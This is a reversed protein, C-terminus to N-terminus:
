LKVRPNSIRIEYGDDYPDYSDIIHWLNGHFECKLMANLIRNIVKSRNLYTRGKLLQDIRELLDQEIRFSILQTQKM